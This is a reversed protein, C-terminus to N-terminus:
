LSICWKAWGVWKWGFNMKGICSTLFNQYVHDYEKETDLKCLVGCANSKLMSEIAENAILEADLIQRGEVFANQSNSFVKGVVKKLTKALVLLAADLSKVEMLEKFFGM